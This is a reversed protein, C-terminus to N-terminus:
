HYRRHRREAALIDLTSRLANVVVQRDADPRGHMLDELILAFPQPWDKDKAGFVTRQLLGEQALSLSGDPLTDHLDAARMAFRGLMEDSARPAGPVSKEYFHYGLVLHTADRAGGTISAVTNQLIIVGAPPRQSRMRDAINQSGDYARSNVTGLYYPDDEERAAIQLRADHARERRTDEDEPVTGPIGELSSNPQTPQSEAPQLM